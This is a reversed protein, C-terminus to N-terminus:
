AKRSRLLLWQGLVVLVLGFVASGGWQKDEFLASIVMALPPTLAAIYSATAYGRRRALGYYLLFAVVSGDLALHLLSVLFPWSTDFTWTRQTILAYVTLITTGYAMAWATAAAVSAGAEESQRAFVNGIAAGIVALFALTLGIVAARDMQAHM